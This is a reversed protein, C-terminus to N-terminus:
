ISSQFDMNIIVLEDEYSKDFVETLIHTADITEVGKFRLIYLLDKYLFLLKNRGWSKNAGLRIKSSVKSLLSLIRKALEDLTFNKM